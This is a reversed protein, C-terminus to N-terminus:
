RNRKSRSDVIALGEVINSFGLNNISKLLSDCQEACSSLDRATQSVITEFKGELVTIADIVQRNIENLTFTTNEYKFSQRIQNIAM